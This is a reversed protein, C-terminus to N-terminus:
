NGIVATNYLITTGLKTFCIILPIMKPSMPMTLYLMAGTISVITGAKYSSSISSNELMLGVTSFAIFDSSAYYLNNRFLDGPFYKAYFVMIYNITLTISFMSNVVLLNARLKPVGM